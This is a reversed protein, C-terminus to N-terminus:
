VLGQATLNVILLQGISVVAGVNGGGSNFSFNLRATGAAGAAGGPITNPVTFEQAFVGDAIDSAWALLGAINGNNAGSALSLSFQGGSSEVGTAKIRFAMYIRDGPSISTNGSGTFQQFQNPTSGAYAINLWNGVGEGATMATVTRTPPTAGNAIGTNADAFCANNSAIQFSTLTSNNNLRALLTQSPPVVWKITDWLVSGCKRAGVATLHVGDYSDVSKTGDWGLWNGSAPDSFQYTWPAFPINRASAMREISISLRELVHSSSNILTSKPLLPTAIPMIGNALLTDFIARLNELSQALTLAGYDNTPAHVVCYAPKAAIVQPLYTSLMADSRIGGLAYAGGFSLVGKSQIVAQMLYSQAGFLNANDDDSPTVGMATISDGLSAIAAARNVAVAGVGSGGGPPTPDAAVGLSTAYGLAVLRNAQSDEAVFDQANDGSTQGPVRLVGSHRIPVLARVTQYGM